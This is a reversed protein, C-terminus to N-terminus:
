RELKRLQIHSFKWVTGIRDTFSGLALRNARRPPSKSLDVTGNPQDDFYTTLTQGDLSIHLKAVPENVEVPFKKVVRRNLSPMAERADIDLYVSVGHKIAWGPSVYAQRSMTGTNQLCEVDCRLEFAAPLELEGLLTLGHTVKGILAGSKDVSWEGHDVRWGSLDKGIPYDVWDGSALKLEFEASRIKRGVLVRAPDDKPLSKTVRELQQLRRSPDSQEIAAEIERRFDGSLAYLWERTEDVDMGYDDLVGPYPQGQFADLQERAVVWNRSRFAWVMKLTRTWYEVSSNTPKAIYRDLMDLMPPAMRRIQEGTLPMGQDREIQDVADLLTTPVSTDYAGTRAAELGVSLIQEYSGGWRPTLSYMYNSYAVWYDPQRKIAEEFSERTLVNDSEGMGVKVLMGLPQPLTKDVAAARTLHDRAKLLHEHFGKWGEETVQGAFGSGRALWARGIEVNGMYTQHLWPDPNKVDGLEDAVRLFRTRDNDEFLFNLKEWIVNRYKPLMEKDVFVSKFAPRFRRRMAELAEGEEALDTLRYNHDRIAMLEFVACYGSGKWSEDARRFLETAVRNEGKENFAEAACWLVLPDDCGADIVRQAM